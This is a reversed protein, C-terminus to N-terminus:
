DSMSKTLWKHYEEETEFTLVKGYSQKKYLAEIMDRQDIGNLHKCQRLTLRYHKM